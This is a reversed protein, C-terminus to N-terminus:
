LPGRLICSQAFAGLFPSGRFILCVSVSYLLRNVAGYYHSNQSHRLKWCTSLRPVLGVIGEPVRPKVSPGRVGCSPIKAAVTLCQSQASALTAAALVLLASVAKM